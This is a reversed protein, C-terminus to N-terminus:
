LLCLDDHDSSRRDRQHRSETDSSALIVDGPARERLRRAPGQVPLASLQSVLGDSLQERGDEDCVRERGTCIGVFVPM